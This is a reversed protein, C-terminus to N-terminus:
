IPSDIIYYFSVWGGITSTGSQSISFANGKSTLLAGQFDFALTIDNQLPGSLPVSGDLFTLNSGASGSLLMKAVAISANSIAPIVVTAGSATINIPLQQEHYDELSFSPM